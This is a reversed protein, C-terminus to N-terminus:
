HSATPYNGNGNSQVIYSNNVPPEEFKVGLYYGQSLPKRGQVQFLADTSRGAIRFQRYLLPSIYDTKIIEWGSGSTPFNIKNEHSPSASFLILDPQLILM